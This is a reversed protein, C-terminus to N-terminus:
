LYCIHFIKALNCRKTQDGLTSQGNLYLDAVGLAAWHLTAKRVPGPLSFSKRLFPSPQKGTTKRKRDGIWPAGNLSM